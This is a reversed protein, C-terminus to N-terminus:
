FYKESDKLKRKLDEYSETLEMSFKNTFYVVTIKEEPIQEIAQVALTDILAEQGMADKVEIFM